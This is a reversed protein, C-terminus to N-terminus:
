GKRVPTVRRLSAGDPTPEIFLSTVDIRLSATRVADMTKANDLETRSPLAEPLRVM